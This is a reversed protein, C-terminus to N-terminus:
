SGGEDPYQELFRRYQEDLTEEDFIPTADGGRQPLTFKQFAKTLARPSRGGWPLRLQRPDPARKRLEDLKWMGRRTM